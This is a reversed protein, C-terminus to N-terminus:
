SFQEVAAAAALGSRYAGEFKPGAFADGALVVRREPDIWCPEPWVLDPTALRWRKIVSDRVASGGAWREAHGRLRSQLEDTPMQWHDGSWGHGAHLTLCAAHSIGKAHNDAVFTFVEGSDEAFQVAGPPPVGSPGDLVVLLALTAQYRIATLSDPLEVDTQVLLARSQPVPCTLVLAEAEVVSADDVIVDWGGITRHLTFVFRRCRVDLPKALDAALSAMGTSAAYRPYGDPQPGFGRCWEHVVGRRVWEDTQAALDDGRVTFFQAGTDFTADGLRHTAMRGGVVESKDLVVVDHREALARAAVLGSLGAGVVAVRM